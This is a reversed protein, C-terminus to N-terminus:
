ILNVERSKLLTSQGPTNNFVTTFFDNHLVCFQDHAEPKVLWWMLNGPDKYPLPQGIEDQNLNLDKYKEFDNFFNVKFSHAKDLRYGNM